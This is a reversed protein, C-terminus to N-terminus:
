LRRLFRDKRPLFYREYDLSFALYNSRGIIEHRPVWGIVRSDQSNDRNDGLAFYHGDPVILENFSSFRSRSRNIRIAHEVGLLDETLDIDFDKFQPNQYELQEGNIFLINDRMEVRDGPIGVVRKILRKGSVSSEFVIIDGREPDARKKLSHLTFPVRVDYAMKNILVRDGEVITPNMSGTPVDNWDAIASRFISMLFIFLLFSRNEKLLRVLNNKM